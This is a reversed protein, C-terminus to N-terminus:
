LDRQFLMILVDTRPRGMYGSLEEEEEEDDASYSATELANERTDSTQSPQVPTIIHEESASTFDTVVQSVDLYSQQEEEEHRGFILTLLNVDQGSGEGVVQEGKKDPEIGVTWGDTNESLGAPSHTEVSVPTEPRFFISTQNVSFDPRPESEPSLPASLSSSSSSTLLNTGVQLKYGRGTSETESERDSDDSLLPNSRRKGPSPLAPKVNLLPSLSTISPVTVLVEEIHHVYALVAPLPRRKLNIFGTCVLLAVVVVGIVVLFCLVASIWKDAPDIRPIFACIPQSYHSKPRDSFCVSVCYQRGPALDKLIQRQMLDTDKVQVIVSNSQIKLRYNHSAYITRLHEVPPHLDVCLNGSCPTVTLLPLDLQTDEIPTFQQSTAPLSEQYELLATIQAFYSDQIISFAETLNCVLPHHVHVCGAVPVWSKGRDTTVTVNYHVGTPTGPGPEWKLLHKFNSSILTLNVPQPLKSMAPLVLPLWTLTWIVATM